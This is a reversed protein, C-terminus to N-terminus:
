RGPQGRENFTFEGRRECPRNNASAACYTAIDGHLFPHHGAEFIVNGGADFAVRGAGGLVVGGCGALVISGLVLVCLLM